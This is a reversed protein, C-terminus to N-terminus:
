EGGEAPVGKTHNLRRLSQTGERGARKDGNGTTGASSPHSLLDAGGLRIFVPRGLATGLERVATQALTEPDGFSRMRATIQRLIRERHVRSRTEELQHLNQLVISAQGALVELRRVDAESFELPGTFLAEAYGMWQGAVTLPVTITSRVGLSESYLARVSSKLRPDTETDAVITPKDPHLLDAAALDQLAYRPVQESIVSSWRALSIASQPADNGVWPHDFLQLSASHDARGLLTHARLIGLVDDYTQAEALEASAQYMKETEILAQQTEDLLRQKDLAEAVEDAIARTVALEEESWPNAEDRTLGLVGIMEGYLQIPIALEAGRGSEEVTEKAQFVARAMAPLWIEATPGEEDGSCHYGRAAGASAGHTESYRGWQERLYRRQVALLEELAAQLQQRSKELEARGREHEATMAQLDEIMTRLGVALETLVEIGEGEPPVPVQVDLAGLAVSHVVDLLARAQADVAQKYQELATENM